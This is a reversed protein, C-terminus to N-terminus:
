PRRDTFLLSFNGPSLSKNLLFSNNNRGHFLRIGVHGREIDSVTSSIVQCLSVAHMSEYTHTRLWGPQLTPKHLEGYTQRKFLQHNPVPMVLSAARVLAFREKGKRRIQFLECIVKSPRGTGGALGLCLWRPSILNPLAIDRPIDEGRNDNFIKFIMISINNLWCGSTSKWSHEGESGRRSPIGEGSCSHPM